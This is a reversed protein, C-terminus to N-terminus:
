VLRWFLPFTVHRASRRYASVKDWANAGPGGGHFCLLAPGQGMENYHVKVGGIDVFRDTAQRSFKRSDM